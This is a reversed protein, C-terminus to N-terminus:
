TTTSSPNFLLLIILQNETMNNGYKRAARRCEWGLRGMLEGIITLDRWVRHRVGLRRGGVERQLLLISSSLPRSDMFVLVESEPDDESCAAIDTPADPANIIILKGHCLLDKLKLLLFTPSILLLPHNDCTQSLLFHCCFSSSPFAHSLLKWPQINLIWLLAAMWLEM